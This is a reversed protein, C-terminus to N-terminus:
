PMAPLASGGCVGEVEQRFLVIELDNWFKYGTAHVDPKYTRLKELWRRAEVAKGSRHNLLALFVWDTPDLDEAKVINLREDFRRLAEQDRGARYLIAGLTNLLTARAEPTPAEQMAREALDVLRQYDSAAGPALCFLWVTSNAAWGRLTQKDLAGAEQRCLREYAPRDGALLRIAACRTIVTHRESPNLEMVKVLDGAAQKWRGQRAV